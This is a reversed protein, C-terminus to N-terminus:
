IEEDMGGNMSPAPEPMTPEVEGEQPPKAKGVNDLYDKVGQTGLSSRTKEELMWLARTKEKHKKLIEKYEPAMEKYADTKEFADHIALHLEHNEGPQPDHTLGQMFMANEADPSMPPEPLKPLYRNVKKHDYSEIFDKTAEWLAQPNQVQVGQPVVGTLPNQLMFAVLEQAEQRRQLRSAYTPDGVPIVHKVGDMDSRNIAKFAINEDGEMVVYQKSEPLFLQNNLFILRLEKELSRFLRKTMVGFQIMGQEIVALTGGTVPSRMGKPFRGMMFDSVSTFQEVYQQIFGLVQFLSQDLRQMNPFFVQSADEVEEMHGPSLKIERRKLGARRGYFGFPQNSLRGADFIQNFATNAMENLVELFHGFGFSYFGEPNPIFHYDVFYDLDQSKGSAQIQAKVARLLTHSPHDVTLVYPTYDKDLSTKYLLHQELMLLPKEGSASSASETEDRTEQIPMSSVSASDRKVKAFDVYFGNTAKRELEDYHRFLRHTKRRASKMNRTRYPLVLDVGSVYESVPRQNKSDYWVKKFNTGGIATNLILKDTEEEFEEMDYKIQWNTFDEARKARDVDNLGVPIVKAFQPPAFFAQYARGHFQNCAVALLPLCVNSADPWPTTKKDRHCMWLKYYRNRKEEWPMRDKVDQNYTEVVMNGIKEREEKKLLKAVNKLGPDEPSKLLKEPM